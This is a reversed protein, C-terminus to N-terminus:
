VELGLESELQSMQVSNLMDLSFVVGSINPNSRVKAKLLQFNGSGFLQKRNVDLTSMMMTDVVRMDPLTNVLAVTENMLYQAYSVNMRKNGWKQRPMVLLVERNMATPRWNNPILQQYNAETLIKDIDSDNYGTNVDLTSCSKCVNVSFKTFRGKIVILDFLPKLLYKSM